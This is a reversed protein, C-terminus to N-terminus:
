DPRIRVLMDDGHSDDRSVGTMHHVRDDVVQV